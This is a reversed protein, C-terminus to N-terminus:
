KRRFFGRRKKAKEEVKPTWKQVQKDPVSYENGETMVCMGDLDDIIKIAVRKRAPDVFVIKAVAGSIDVVKDGRSFGM